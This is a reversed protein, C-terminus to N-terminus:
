PAEAERLAIWAQFCPLHFRLLHVSGGKQWEAEYEIASKEIQLGCVCCAEGSGAGAWSSGSQPAPLEGAAIKAQIRSQLEAHEELDSM